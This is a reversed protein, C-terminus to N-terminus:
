VIKIKNGYCVGGISCVKLDILIIFQPFMDYSFYSMCAHKHWGEDGM